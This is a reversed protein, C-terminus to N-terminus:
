PQLSLFVVKKEKDPGKIVEFRVIRDGLKLTEVEAFISPCLLFFTSIWCYSTLRM